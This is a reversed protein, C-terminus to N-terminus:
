LYLNPLNFSFSLIHSINLSVMLPPILSHSASLCSTVFANWTALLLYASSLSFSYVSSQVPIVKSKSHYRNVNLFLAVGKLSITLFFSLSAPCPIVDCPFYIYHCKDKWKGGLLDTNKRRNKLTM